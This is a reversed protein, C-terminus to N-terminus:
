FTRHPNIHTFGVKEVLNKPFSFSSSNRLIKVTDNHHVHPPNFPLRQFPENLSSLVAIEGPNQIRLKQQQITDAVFVTSEEM